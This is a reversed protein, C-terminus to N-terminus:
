VGPSSCHFESKIINGSLANIEMYVEGGRKFAKCQPTKGQPVTFNILWRSPTDQSYNEFKMSIQMQDSKVGYKGMDTQVITKIRSLPLFNCESM